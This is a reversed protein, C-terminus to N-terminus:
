NSTLLDDPFPFRKKFERYTMGRLDLKEPKHGLPASIPPETTGTGSYHSERVLYIRGNEVIRFIKQRWLSSILDAMEKDETDRKTPKTTKRKM